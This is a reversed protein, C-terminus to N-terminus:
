KVIVIKNGNMRQISLIGGKKLPKWMYGGTSLEKLENMPKQNLLVASPKKLLRIQEVGTTDFTRYFVKIKQPEIKGLDGGFYRDALPAYNVQGIVSTSSLIHEEDSPALEPMVAMARIFHRVYDGYGDTLWNEDNPYQNKGDDNVMYTAWNLQRVANDYHFRDGTLSVYQLEASAERSSHSNGPQQYATQENVVTVGYKKWKENGLKEYVWDFIKKVDTKWNPFYQGHNMMFQAFTIANIQTDSWGPVDEFFPGWKNNQLPYKKMWNMIKDFAKKYLEVQGINLQQLEIFLELAGSWNTTYGSLGVNQESRNNNLLKGTEGTVANVKFPMPSNNEDGDKTHMALTNAIKVAANLYEDDSINPYREGTTMKYLHLLEIGFSGAKDPQTYNKGIIMDGDYVGSYVLTNYPYPIDGWEANAPSLGHSLYYDAIFKMNEKIRENGTYAYLLRWSSLAMGFQDGGLGRPDNSGERWVQHNMYYPIGNMDARMTDWFNWVLKVVHSWAKGPEDHSWPIINGSADTKINHYLLKETQASASVCLTLFLGICYNKKM